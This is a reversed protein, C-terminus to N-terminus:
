SGSGPGTFFNQIRLVAKWISVMLVASKEKEVRPFNQAFVSKIRGSHTHFLLPEALFDDQEEFNFINVIM